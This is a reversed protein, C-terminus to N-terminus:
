GLTERWVKTAVIIEDRAVKSQRIGKGVAEENNYRAATDLLRYGKELALKVSEIAEEESAKYTGFGLLPLSNGDNLTIYEM